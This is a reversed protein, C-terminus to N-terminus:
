FKDVCNSITGGYMNMTVSSEGSGGIPAAGSLGIAGGQMGTCGTITGGHMNFVSNGDFYLGGSVSVTSHCDTITGGYMNVTSQSHAQIGGSTGSSSHPGITTGNYINLVASDGVDFICNTNDNNKFQLTKSYGEEGLNMVATKKLLTTGTLVHGEGLITLTGNNLTVNGSYTIDAALKITKSGGAANLEAIVRNFGDVDSIVEPDTDNRTEAEENETSKVFAYTSFEGVTFEAITMDGNSNMVAKVLEANNDDDIHVIQQEVDEDAGNVRIEVDVPLIPEIEEDEYWFSIDVATIESISTEVVDSVAAFVDEAAVPETKMITEVPFAGDSDTVRIYLGNVDEEVFEHPGYEIEAEEEASVEEEENMEEDLIETEEGEEDTVEIIEDTEGTESVTEENEDNVTEEQVTEAPAETVTEEKHEEQVVIVEEENVTEGTDESEEVTEEVVASEDEEAMVTNRCASPVHAFLVFVAIFLILIKRLLRNM